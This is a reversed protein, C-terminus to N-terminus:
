EIGMLYLVGEIVDIHKICIIYLIPFGYHSLWDIEYSTDLEHM